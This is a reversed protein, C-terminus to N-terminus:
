RTSSILLDIGGWYHWRPPRGPLEFEPSRGSLKFRLELTTKGTFPVTTGVGGNFELVLHKMEQFNLVHVSKRFQGNLLANYLVFTPRVSGFLYLEFTKPREFYDPSRLGQQMLSDSFVLKDSQSLPNAVYTWHRPDIKGFRFDFGYNVYTYYGVSYQWSNKVEPATVSTASQERIYKKTLLSEKKFSYSLTPEGSTSVQNNWGRPTRPAKTDNENMAKHIATQVERSVYTGIVGISLSSTYSKFAENDVYTMLTQMYTLAGYPRDNAIVYAAPLSDPTFSGNAFLLGPISSSENLYAKGFVRNLWVHPKMLFSRSLSPDSYYFGIGLTYNRDENLKKLGIMELTYDQDYFIGSAHYRLRGADEDNSGPTQGVANGTLALFLLLQLSKV